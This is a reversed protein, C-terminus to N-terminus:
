KKQEVAWLWGATTAVYLKRGHLPHGPGIRRKLIELMEDVCEMWTMTWPWKVHLTKDPSLKKM